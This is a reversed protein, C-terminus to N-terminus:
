ASSRMSRWSKSSARWCQWSRRRRVSAVGQTKKLWDSIKLSDDITAAKYIRVEIPNYEPPLDWKQAMQGMLKSALYRTYVNINQKTMPLPMDVTANGLNRADTTGM